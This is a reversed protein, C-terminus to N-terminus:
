SEKGSENRKRSLWIITTPFHLIKWVRSTNLTGALIIEYRFRVYGGGSMLGRVFAGVLDVMTPCFGRGM